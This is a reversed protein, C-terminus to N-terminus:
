VIIVAFGLRQAFDMAQDAASPIAAAVEIVRCTILILWNLFPLVSM